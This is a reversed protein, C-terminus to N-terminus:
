KKSRTKRKRIRYITGVIICLLVVGVLYKKWITHVKYLIIESKPHQLEMVVYSGDMDIKVKEWNSENKEMVMYTAEKNPIKYRIKLPEQIGLVEDEISIESHALLKADLPKPFKEKQGELKQHQVDLKAKPSFVGEVLIEARETDKTDAIVLRYPTYTAKIKEPYYLADYGEKEWTGYYGEKKPVIPIENEELGKGYVFNVKEHITDEVVFTLELEKFKKPINKEKIMNEYHIPQAIKQYSIDDIGHIQDDEIYPVPFDVFYNNEINEEIMEVNGAISGIFEEKKEIRTMSYCNFIKEGYGCIGGVYKKGELISLNYSNRITGQANGVIGGVYNGDTSRITGYNETHVLSGMDMSGVIGGVGNKKGQISGDNYSSGIVATSLYYFDLSVDGVTKYEDEPDLVNENGINGVVGGINIDGQIEGTNKSAVIYGLAPRVKGIEEKESLLGLDSVDKFIECDRELMNKRADELVKVTTFFQKNIQLLNEALTDSGTQMHNTLVLFSDTMKQFATFMLENEKSVYEGLRSFRISEKEGDERFNKEMIDLGNYVKESAERFEEASTAFKEMGESMLTFAKEYDEFGESFAEMAKTTENAGKEFFELSKRSHEMMKEVEVIDKNYEKEFYSLARELQSSGASYHSRASSLIQQLYKANVSIQGNMSDSTNVFIKSLEVTLNFGDETLKSLHKLAALVEKLAEERPKGETIIKELNELALKLGEISEKMGKENAKIEDEMQHAGQNLTQHLREFDGVFKEMAWLLNDTGYSINTISSQLDDYGKEFDTNNTIVLELKETAIEMEQIAKELEEFSKTLQDLGDHIDSTGEAGKDAAKELEELGAKMQTLGSGIEKTAEKLEKTTDALDKVLIETREIIENVNETTDDVYSTSGDVVEELHNVTVQVAKSFDSLATTVGEASSQGDEIGKQIDSQLNDLEEELEQLVDKEYQILIHPEMQGVIGGVDKRGQVIGENESLGTYGSQRGVIGGVNYGVHPYGVEGTNACREINGINVGCIGGTDTSAINEEATNMEELSIDEIKFSTKQVATNIHATNEGSLILGYNKGVLGGTATRGSIKGSVKCKTIIGTAENVGVIGGVNETGNISGKFSCREIRGKNYGAIGGINELSRQTFMSGEINLRHVSADKEIYRFFGYSAGSTEMLLNKITHGNGHFRGSFSPIGTFTVDQMDIDNKLVVILNKSYADFSCKKALEVLEEKSSIEIYQRKVEVKEEALIEVKSWVCLLLIAMFGCIISQMRKKYTENQRRM